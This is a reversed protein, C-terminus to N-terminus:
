PGALCAPLSGSGWGAVGKVGAWQWASGPTDVSKWSMRQGSSGWLARRPAPGALWPTHPPSVLLREAGPARESVAHPTMTQDLQGTWWGPGRGRALVSPPFCTPSVPVLAPQLRKANAPAAGSAGPFAAEKRVGPRGASPKLLTLSLGASGRGVEQRRSGQGRRSAPTPPSTSPSSGEQGALDWYGGGAGAQGAWDLM